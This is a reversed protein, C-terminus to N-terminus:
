STGQPIIENAAAILSQIALKRLKMYHAKHLCLTNLQTRHLVCFKYESYIPPRRRPVSRINDSRNCFHSHPEYPFENLLISIYLRRFLM